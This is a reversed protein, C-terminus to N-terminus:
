FSEYKGDPMLRFALGTFGRAAPNAGPVTDGTLDLEIVGDQFEVGPVVAHRAGDPQNDTAADTVRVAARGKWNAADAKVNTLKLKGADLPITEAHALAALACFLILMKTRM